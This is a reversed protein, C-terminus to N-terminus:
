FGLTERLFPRLCVEGKRYDGKGWWALIVEDCAEVHLAADVSPWPKGGTRTLFEQFQECANTLLIRFRYLKPLPLCLVVTPLILLGAGHRQDVGSIKITTGNTTLEFEEPLVEKLREALEIVLEYASSASTM